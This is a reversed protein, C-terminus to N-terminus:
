SKESRAPAKDGATQHFDFYELFGLRAGSIRRNVLEFAVAYAYRGSQAPAELLKSILRTPM